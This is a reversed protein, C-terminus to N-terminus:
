YEVYLEQHVTCDLASVSVYCDALVEENTCGGNDRKCWTGRSVPIGSLDNPTDCFVVRTCCTTDCKSQDSWAGWKCENSCTRTQTKSGGCPCDVSKSDPTGPSCEVSIKCDGAAKWAGWTCDASCTRAIPQQGMMCDGCARTDTQSNGPTCEASTPCAGGSSMGADGAAGGSLRAGGAGADPGGAEAEGAAGGLGAAGGGSAGASEAGGSSDAGSVAGAGDAGSAGARPQETSGVSRAGGRADYASFTAGGSASMYARRDNDLLGNCALATLLVTVVHFKSFARRRAAM